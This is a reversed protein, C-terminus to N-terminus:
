HADHAQGIYVLALMMFIFAQLTVILIHFIAWALGALFHGGGLLFGGVSWTFFGGLLAILMFLLEGAYLNGFLRLGLSLTKSVYEIMQMSFNAIGLLVAFIPNSSTGFPAVFLEKTFGAPKKIKIGYYLSVFLVVLSMAMPVNLDATPVVRMYEIGFLRKGAEPLLDVPILDMCNMFFIWIFSVLALPAIKSVDGHVISRALEHVFDVIAEMAGVFRNPTKGAEISKAAKWLLWGTLVALVVSYFASDWNIYTFDVISKQPHGSNNLHGLHHVIYEGATPASSSSAM